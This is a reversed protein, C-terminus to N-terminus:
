RGQCVGGASVFESAELDPVDAPGAACKAYEVWPPGVPATSLRVVLDASRPNSDRGAAM